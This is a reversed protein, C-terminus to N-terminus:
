ESKSEMVDRTKTIMEMFEAIRADDNNKAIPYMASLIESLTGIKDESSETKSWRSERLVGAFEAACMATKLSASAAEFSTAIDSSVIKQELGLRKGTRPDTYAVRVKAVRGTKANKHLKIEYLATMAGGIGIEGGDLGDSVADTIRHNEYGILRFSSVIDKNFDVEVTVDRAAIGLMEDLGEGFVRQAEIPSDVFVYRGNGHDAIQEMLFDNYGEMGLGVAFIQTNEAAVKGVRELISAPGTPKINAMGDSFLVIRCTTDTPKANNKNHKSTASSMARAVKCGDVVGACINTVDEGAEPMLSNIADMIAETNKAETPQLVVTADKAFTVIAVRDTPRLNAHMIELSKKVLAMKGDLAMSASTDVVLVVDADPRKQETAQLGVRIIKFVNSKNYLNFESPAGDVYLVLAYSKPAAYGYDFYNVFEENRVAKSPPVLGENIYRRCISYSGTDTDAAFNSVNEDDTHIFPNEPMDKSLLNYRADNPPTLGGAGCSSPGSTESHRNNDSACEPAYDNYHFFVKFISEAFQPSAVLTVGFALVLVAAAATVRLMFRHRMAFPTRQSKMQGAKARAASLITEDTQPSVEADTAAQLAKIINKEDLM